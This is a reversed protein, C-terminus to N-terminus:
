SRGKTREKVVAGRAQTEWKGDERGREKCTQKEHREFKGEILKGIRRERASRKGKKRLRKGREEKGGVGRERNM